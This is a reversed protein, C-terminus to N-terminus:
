RVVIVVQTLKGSQVDVWREYLHGNHLLAVRYRGAPLDSLAANEAGTALTPHYTEVYRITDVENADSYRQLTLEASQFEGAENIISFAIAGFDVQVTTLWLEPNQTAFYDEAEGLRVEFHLHSGTAAGSQGIAGIQEGMKVAQRTQVGIESLHAYLSYVDGAHQIVIVNGYFNKWPSFQTEVDPGAYVVVGDAAAHVPAGFDKGLEVGHHPDRTGDATSAYRYTPDVFNEEPLQIPRQFLFHRDTICYEVVYPDCPLSTETPPITTTTPVLTSFATPSPELTATSIIEAVQTAPELPSCAGLFIILLLLFRKMIM